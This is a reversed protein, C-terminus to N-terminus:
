SILADDGLVYLDLHLRSIFCLYPSSLLGGWFLAEIDFFNAKNLQNRLETHFIWQGVITYTNLLISCTM